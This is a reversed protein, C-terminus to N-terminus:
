ADESRPEFMPLTIEDSARRFVVRVPLGIAVTAPACNVLNTMLHPGEDLAVTAVVYPVDPAFAPSPARHVVTFSYVEGNGTCASWELRASGCQPCLTRPYFHFHDCELCRPMVLRHARAAAWYPETAADPVPLPREVVHNM